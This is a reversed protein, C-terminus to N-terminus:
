RLREPQQEIWRATREALRELAEVALRLDAERTDEESTHSLGRLSQVFLMATPVGSQAVAVADHLPGSPMVYASGSLEGVVQAGLATLEEHFRVPPVHYLREWAVEVREWCAITESAVRAEGLMAALAPAEIHRQDLTCECEGAVATVIGPRPILSGVTSVGEHRVAIERVALAFRAAASLADRRMTMPTSGAHATQGRFVLRHRELGMTGLVAALPLNLSELVPGQEIHLELYAAANDMQRAALGARDLDVGWRGIVDTLRAGHADRVERLAAPDFPGCAAHSTFLSLGFQTGEEEAWAALRLTVPPTGRAAWYRLVELGAAVGLCGDLWGGGPVSDIHSGLILARPSAGALTAWLNGAEDVCVEVPLEALRAHLWQRAQDWPETWALRQAGHVDGTLRKLERLDDVVRQPNLVATHGNDTM